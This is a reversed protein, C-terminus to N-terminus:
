RRAPPSPPPIRERRPPARVRPWSARGCSGRARAERAPPDDQTAGLTRRRMVCTRQARLAQMLGRRRRASRSVRAPPGTQARPNRRRHRRPRMRTQTRRPPRRRLRLRRPRSPSRRVPQRRRHPSRSPLHHPRRRPLQRLTPPGGLRFSPSRTSTPTAPAGVSASTSIRSLMSPRAPRAPTPSSTARPLRTAM